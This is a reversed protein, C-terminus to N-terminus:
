EVTVNGDEIILDYRYGMGFDKNLTLKGSILVIDGLKAAGATTVTLDNTGSSGTGDQIHIWNRGMIQASFKVVKGRVTFVGDGLSDKSAYIEAITKDAKKIGAFKDKADPAAQAPGAKTAHAEAMLRAEEASPGGKQTGPAAATPAPQVVTTSAPACGIISVVALVSVLNKKM